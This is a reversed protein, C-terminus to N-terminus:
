PFRVRNQTAAWVTVVPASSQYARLFACISYNPELVPNLIIESQSLFHSHTTVNLIQTRHTFLYGKWGQSNTWSMEM